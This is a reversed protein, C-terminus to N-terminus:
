KKFKLAFGIGSLLIVTSVILLVVITKPSQSNNDQQSFDEMSPKNFKDNLSQTDKTQSSFENSESDQIDKNPNNESSFENPINNLDINEQPTNSSDFDEPMNNSNFDNLSMQDSSEQSVNTSNITKSNNTNAIKVNSTKDFDNKDNFGSFGGKSDDMNMTGMDSTNINSADILTSSDNKQGESTSPITGNLQGKISESRLTCFQTITDVGKLFEDYTCFKTTDNKVYEDIMDATESILKQLDISNIFENFLQHYQETYEENDFIWSIMPRDSMDGSSVPTDIPSNVSSTASSGQFTGFALNYDWPIMSLQKDKEYLYYNHIMMGTYSDGNVLFNHVVFYRLVEDVNVTSEIDSQESLAKLSSILRKKDAKTIDTKANNFINTYSDFNDDTYKLKVDNSGMGGFGGNSFDPMEGEEFMKDPNFNEPIEGNSFDPINEGLNMDTKKSNDDLNDKESNDDNIFDKMDFDMGNGRGGGFSMSDPKYLEGQESGYNRKLFSDEIGEVALYLGWEEGNVYIDAYSCLPSDVGFSNMLTYSIYDKMYTNDQIINNLCLKDLGHYTTSDNYHDFEIKFSYRSSEMSKVSSLSTNGKARIAVNKVLEGDIDLNCISYEESECNEIFKDWDDMIIDIRHVKSNDFLREEYGLTYATTQIGFINGNCFVIGIIISIIVIIICIRDINKYTSM